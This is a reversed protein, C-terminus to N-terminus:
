QAPTSCDLKGVLRAEDWYDDVIKCKTAILVAARMNDRIALSRGAIMSKQMVKITGAKIKIRYAKGDVTAKYEGDPLTAALTPAALLALGIVAARVM